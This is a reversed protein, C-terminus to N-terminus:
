AFGASTDQKFGPGYKCALARPVNGPKQTWVVESGKNVFTSLKQALKALDNPKYVGGIPIEPAPPAEHEGAFEIHSDDGGSALSDVGQDAGAVIPPAPQLTNQFLPVSTNSSSRSGSSAAVGRAAYAARIKDVSQAVPATGSHSSSTNASQAILAAREANM